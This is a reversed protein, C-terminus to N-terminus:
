RGRVLDALNELAGLYADRESSYDDEAPGTAQVRLLEALTEDVQTLADALPGSVPEPESGDYDRGYTENACEQAAVAIDAAVDQDHRLDVPVRVEILIMAYRTPQGTENTM